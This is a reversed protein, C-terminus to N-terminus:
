IRVSNEVFGVRYIDQCRIFGNQLMWACKRKSIHLMQRVQDSSVEQPYHDRLYSFDSAM